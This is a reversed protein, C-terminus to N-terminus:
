SPREEAPIGVGVIIALGAALVPVGIPTFPILVLCIAGGVLAASRGARHALHPMLM